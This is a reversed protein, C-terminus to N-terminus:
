FDNTLKQLESLSSKSKGTNKRFGFVIEFEGLVISKVKKEAEEINDSKNVIKSFLSKFFIKRMLAGDYKDFINKVEEPVEVRLVSM